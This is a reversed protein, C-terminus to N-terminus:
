AASPLPPPPTTQPRVVSHSSLHTTAHKHHSHVCRRLPWLESGAPLTPRRLPLPAEPLLGAPRATARLPQPCLPLPRVGQVRVARGPPQQADVQVPGHLVAEDPAAARGAALARRVTPRPEQSRAFAARPAHSCATPRAPRAPRAPARPPARTRLNACPAGQGGGQQHRM